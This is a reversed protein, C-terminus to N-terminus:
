VLQMVSAVRWVLNHFKLCYSCCGSTEPLPGAKPCVCMLIPLCCSRCHSDHNFYDLMDSISIQVKSAIAIEGLLQCVSSTKFLTKWRQGDHKKVTFNWWGDFSFPDRQYLDAFKAAHMTNLGPAKGKDNLEVYICMMLRRLLPTPNMMTVAVYGRDGFLNNASSIVILANCTNVRIALL